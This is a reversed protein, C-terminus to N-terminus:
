AVAAMIARAQQVLTFSRADGGRDPHTRRVAERYAEKWLGNLIQVTAHTSFRALVEAAQHRDTITENSGANAPLAKWGSYQEGRKTIGYRDLRRLDGLGLAIARINDQWHDFRDCCIKLPGVKSEFSLIVGPHSAEARARPFGDLRLDREEIALMLVISKARIARLETSFATVTQSWTARFPSRKRGKTHVGPWIDIPRVTVGLDAIGRM